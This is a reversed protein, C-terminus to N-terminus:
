KSIYPPVRETAQSIKLTIRQASRWFTTTSRTLRHYYKASVLLPLLRAVFAAAVAALEQCCWLLSAIYQRTAMTIGTAGNRVLFQSKPCTYTESLLGHICNQGYVQQCRWDVDASAVLQSFQMTTIADPRLRHTGTAEDSSLLCQFHMWRGSELFHIRKIFSYRYAWWPQNCVYMCWPWQTNWCTLFRCWRRRKCQNWALPM